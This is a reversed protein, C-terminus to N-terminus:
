DTRTDSHRSPGPCSASLWGGLVGGGCVGAGDGGGGGGCVGTRTLGHMCSRLLPAWWNVPLYKLTHKQIYRMRSLVGVSRAIFPILMWEAGLHNSLVIASEDNSPIEDGYTIVKLPGSSCYYVFADQMFQIARASVARFQRRPLLLWALCQVVLINNSVLVLIIGAYMAQVPVGLVMGSGL